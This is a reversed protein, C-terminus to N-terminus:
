RTVVKLIEERMVECHPCPPPATPPVSEWLLESLSVGLANAIRWAQELRAPQKGSEIKNITTQHHHPSGDHDIADGLQTQTMGIQKRLERVRRGFMDDVASM